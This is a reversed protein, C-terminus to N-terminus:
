YPGKHLPPFRGTLRKGFVETEDAIIQTSPFEDCGKPELPLNDCPPSGIPPRNPHTGGVADIYQNDNVVCERM